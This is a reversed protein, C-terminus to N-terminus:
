TGSKTETCKECYAKEDIKTDDDLLGPYILSPRNKLAMLLSIGLFIGLSGLNIEIEHIM